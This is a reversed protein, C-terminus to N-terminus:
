KLIEQYVSMLESAITEDNFKQVFAKGELALKRRREEDSLLSEVERCMEQPDEPDSLYVAGPGGAEPFCGGRTTVVPTGSFLSEIIPIGFGEFLSPYIFLDAMQYIMALEKNSVGQLFKVKNELQNAQIYEKVQKAYDSKISGVVILQTDIDQIAKVVTLLNKRAEVTGVNLIFQKPLNFKARTVKFEDEAYSAKFVDQCGQYVVQIKSEEVKLFSIIDEKTQQSIAIIRDANRAAYLFKRYYINRDILSFYAPFRMFILDHITVVSRINKGALGMPIEGSLGHFLSIQDNMLDRVVRKQRWLNYFVRDFGAAPFRETINSAGPEFLKERSPKPNYLFYQNSAYFRNLLRVTDRSYNGLGTKNHFIRKADFGIRM